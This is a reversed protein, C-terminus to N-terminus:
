KYGELPDADGYGVPDRMRLFSHIREERNGAMSTAERRRKMLEKSTQDHLRDREQLANMSGNGARTAQVLIGLAALFVVLSLFTNNSVLPKQPGKADRQYWREWDEWTANQSPSGRDGWGSDTPDGRDRHSTVEPMGNWGAGYHDYADRKIPDSLISNAAVVLRYRELGVARSVGCSNLSDAETHGNRDPHYLKVLDYFRQKSYPAGKKQNFIQYPTPLSNAPLDPWRLDSGMSGRGNLVHAYQRREDRCRHTPTKHALSLQPPAHLFAVRARRNVPQFVALSHEAKKFAHRLGRQPELAGMGTLARLPHIAM